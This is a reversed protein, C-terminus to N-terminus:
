QEKEETERKRQGEDIGCDKNGEKEGNNGKGKEEM